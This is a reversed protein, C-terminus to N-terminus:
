GILIARYALGIVPVDVGESCARADSGSLLNSVFPRDALVEHPVPRHERHNAGVAGAGAQQPAGAGAQSAGSTGIKAMLAAGLFLMVRWGNGQTM